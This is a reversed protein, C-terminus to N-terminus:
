SSEVSSDDAFGGSEASPDDTDTRDGGEDGLLDDGGETGGPADLSDDRPQEERPDPLIAGELRAAVASADDPRPVHLNDEDGALEVVLTPTRFYWYVGILVTSLLLALAGVNLLITDLNMLLAFMSQVVDLLGGLGFGDATAGDLQLNDGFISEPDFLFGALLLVVGVTGAMLGRRLLNAMSRASTDVGTVNPRDAQQFNEGDLDPTFTLVRHSTVVVRATGVDVSERVTEGDYLLDDVRRQWRSMRWDVPRTTM